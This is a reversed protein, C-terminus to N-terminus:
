GDCLKESSVSGELSYIYSNDAEDIGLFRVGAIVNKIPISVDYTIQASPDFNTRTCKLTETLNVNIEAREVGTEQHIENIMSEKITPTFYGSMRAQQAHNEVISGLTLQKHHIEQFNVYQIFALIFFFFLTAGVIYSKLEKAM